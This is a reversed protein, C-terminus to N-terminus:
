WIFGLRRLQFVAATRNATVEAATAINAVPANADDCALTTLTAIM